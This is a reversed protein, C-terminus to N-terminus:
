ETSESDVTVHDFLQLSWVSFSMGAADTIEDGIWDTTHLTSQTLTHSHIGNM